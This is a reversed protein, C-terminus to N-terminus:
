PTPTPEGDDVDKPADREIHSASLWAQYKAPNNKYKIKMVGLLIRRAIAGRRVTEGLQATAQVQSEVAMEPPTMSAEFADIAAQLDEMFTEDLGYRIFDDKYEVAREHFANGLGLMEADTINVKVSFLEDIGPFEYAMSKSIDRIDILEVRLGERAIEKANYEFRAEGFNGLQNGSVQGIEDICGDVVDMQAAQVSAAPYDGPNELRHAKM